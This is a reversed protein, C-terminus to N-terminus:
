EMFLFADKALADMDERTVQRFDLALEPSWEEPLEVDMPRPEPPEDEEEKGKDQRYQWEELPDPMDQCFLVPQVINHASAHPALPSKVMHWPETTIKTDFRPRMIELAISDVWLEYQHPRLHRQAHQAWEELTCVDTFVPIVADPGLLMRLADCCTLHLKQEVTTTTEPTLFIEQLAPRYITDLLHRRHVPSPQDLTKLFAIRQQMTWPMVRDDWIWVHIGRRGSFLVQWQKFNWGAPGLLYSLMPYASNVIWTDWCVQCCTKRTGCDCGPLHVRWAKYEDMDVDLRLETHWPPEPHLQHIKWALERERASPWLPGINMTVAAWNTADKRVEAISTYIHNRPNTWSPADDNHQFNLAFVIQRQALSYKGNHTIWREFLDWPFVDRWFRRRAARLEKQEKTLLSKGNQYSSSSVVRQVRPRRPVAPHGGGGGPPPPRQPRSSAASLVRVPGRKRKM